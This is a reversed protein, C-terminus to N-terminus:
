ENKKVNLHLGRAPGEKQILEFVKHVDEVSGIITGDDLYWVCLDLNPFEAEIKLALPHLVLSFLLPGLTDGQQGGAMSQLVITGFFLHAPHSYCYEVWRYLGPLKEYVQVLMETRNVVSPMRFTLRLCSRAQTM